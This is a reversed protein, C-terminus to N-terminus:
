DDYLLLMTSGLGEEGIQHAPGTTFARFEGEPAVFL